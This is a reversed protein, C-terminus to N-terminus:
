RSLRPVASPFLRRFGAQRVAASEGSLNWLTEYFFFVSGAFGQARVAKVQAEIREIPVTKRKLGTLIGIGVPIHRRAAQLEPAQLETVFSEIGDRYVQLVLEEILGEREWRRWDQLSHNYAFDYNNPSLTVLVNTKKAKIERFARKLFATIKDARWKMWEANKPDDPPAKGGHESKYLGITYPDYGFEIPLGFHDDFQIGDIDYKSTLELLLDLIFQQVEPKFPNLWVRPYIGEQWTVTGDRRQTLWDPYRLALASDEPTMFGFEFWPVVGIRHRRGAAVLEALPDRQELQPPRPDIPANIVRKMVASPYMTYGWNWVVPYVRNFNQQALQAMARDLANRDFLVPSDVNTIWTGRIEPQKAPQAITPWVLGLVVMVGVLIALGRRLNQRVMIGLELRDGRAAYAIPTWTM